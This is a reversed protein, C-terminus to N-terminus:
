SRGDLLDGFEQHRVADRRQRVVGPEVRAGSGLVLGAEQPLVADDHDRGDGEAHADVFRVYAEDGMEVQGFGDLPVVLFGPAGPPVPQGRGRPQGVTELVDDLQALEDVRGRTVERVTPSQTGVEVGHERQALRDLAAAGPQEGVEPLLAGGRAAVAVGAQCGRLRPIARDGGLLQQRGHEPQLPLAALLEARAVEDVDQEAPLRGLHDLVIVVRQLDETDAGLETLGLPATHHPLQQDLPQQRDLALM